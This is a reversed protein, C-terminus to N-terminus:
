HFLEISKSRWVLLVKRIKIMVYMLFAMRWRFLRLMLQSFPALVSAYFINGCVTLSDGGSRLTNFLSVFSKYNKYTIEDILLSQMLQWKRCIIYEEKEDLVGYYKFYDSLLDNVRNLSEFANERYSHMISGSRQLYRYMPRPIYAIKEAQWYAKIAFAGDENFKYNIDFRLHNKEIFERKYVKTGVCSMIPWSINSLAHAAIAKSTYIGQSIAALENRVATSDEYTFAFGTLIFDIDPHLEFIDKLCQLADGEFEDDADLFCIWKGRTAELGRNRTAELGSHDHTISIVNDYKKALDKCLAFTSDTSGDDILIIEMNRYTQRQLKEVCHVVYKEVNYCPIIISFDVENM